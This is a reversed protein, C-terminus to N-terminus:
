IGRMEERRGFRRVSKYEGPKKTVKPRGWFRYVGYSVCDCLHAFDSRRYPVGNRNEWLKMAKATKDCHRAVRLRRVGSEAKLRANTAKCREIIDPNKDSDKQPKYMHRWNRARLVLESTKGKTHAGDQWFGSADMVVACHVPKAPDDTDVKWGRYCDDALHGGPVWRGTSELMDLLEDEDSQEAIVEDVVCFIEDEPAAPDRFVKAVDAVMAPTKQFDMLVIYGFPKGLHKQTFEPTIDIWGPEPDKWSERDSWAHMVTNGIPMMLGEIERKYTVEDVEGKLSELARHDVWPNNRYVLEFVESEIKGAKTQEYHEEVWRGIPSDPPNAALIVLGGRDAAAGRLQVYGARHQNQAENYLAFDVRGRKLARPKHGSLMLLRSGHLLRFSVSKGAGGGRYTYFRRPLMSRIAQELEDTEEQTPSIAWVLARPFAVAYLILAVCALHSKGGRRGGLFLASWVRKFDGWKGTIRCRFWRALWRAAAEQGRHVRLVVVKTAEGSWKKRSRDWRGGVRLIEEEGATVWQKSGDPLEEVDALRLSVALDLYRGEGQGERELLIAVSRQLRGMTAM